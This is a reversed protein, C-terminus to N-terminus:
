SHTGDRLPFIQNHPKCVLSMRLPQITQFAPQYDLRSSPRLPCSCVM